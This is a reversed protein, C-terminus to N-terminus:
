RVQIQVIGYRLITTIIKWGAMLTGKVTGSIKSKGIRKRYRVPVERVRLKKLAAKIQMEVTWGYNRDRMSLQELAPLSIARFPGLDTYRVGLLLHMLRCALWNGFIQQPAMAGKEKEGLARSGIVMDCEGSLIPAILCPIEEPFDSHDADLFVVLDAKLSQAEAIGRLCAAGYGLEGEFVVRGGAARAVEATRDRSNNNVVIIEEVPPRPIARVVKAISQEENFAPIVAVIKLM